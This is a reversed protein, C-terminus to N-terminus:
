RSEFDFNWARTLSVREALQKASWKWNDGWFILSVSKSEIQLTRAIQSNVYKSAKMRRAQIILQEDTMDTVKTMKKLELNKIKSV